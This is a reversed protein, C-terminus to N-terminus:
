CQIDLYAFRTPLEARASSRAWAWPVSQRAVILVEGCLQPRRALNRVAVREEGPQPIQDAPLSASRWGDGIQAVLRRFEPGHNVTTRRLGFGNEMAALPADAREWHQDRWRFVEAEKERSGTFFGWSQPAIALMQTRGAVSPRLPSDLWAVSAVFVIAGALLRAVSRPRM